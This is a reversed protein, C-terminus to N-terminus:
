KLVVKCIGPVISINKKSSMRNIDHEFLEISAYVEEHAQFTKHPSPGICKRKYVNYYLCAYM